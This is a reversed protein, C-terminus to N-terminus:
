LGDGESSFPTEQGGQQTQLAGPPFDPGFERALPHSSPASASNVTNVPEM